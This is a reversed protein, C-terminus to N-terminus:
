VGSLGKTLSHVLQDAVESPTPQARCDEAVAAAREAYRPFSLLRDVLGAIDAGPTASDAQIGCGSAVLHTANVFQDAFHPVVVQPTGFSLATMTTGSGGHHVVAACTGVVTALPTWVAKRVAEPLTAPDGLRIRDSERMGVVIDLDQASLAAVLDTILTRVNGYRPLVTGLTVLVRQRAPRVLFEYPMEAPGNYPVYRMTWDPTTEPKMLFSPPCVGLTRSPAAPILNRGALFKVAAEQVEPHLPIGWHFEVHPCGTRAAAIGAAYASTESVIVDPQWTKCVKTLGTHTLVALRGFGQGTGVRAASETPPQRPGDESSDPRMVDVMEMAPATAVATLGAGVVQPLFSEAAGVLVEHGAVRAAQLFPVMPYFHGEAPNTVALIRM